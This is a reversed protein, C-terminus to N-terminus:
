SSNATLERFELLTFVVAIISRLLLKTDEENKSCGRDYFDRAYMM